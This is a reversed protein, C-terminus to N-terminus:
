IDESPEEMTSVMPSSDPQTHILFCVLNTWPTNWSKRDHPVGYAAFNVSQFM